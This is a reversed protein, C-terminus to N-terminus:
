IKLICISVIGNCLNLVGRLPPRVTYICSASSTWDTPFNSGDAMVSSRNPGRSVVIFHPDLLRTAPELSVTLTQGHTKLVLEPTDGSTPRGLHWIVELDDPFHFRLEPEM